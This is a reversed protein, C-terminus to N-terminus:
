SLDGEIPSTSMRAPRHTVARLQDVSKLVAAAATTRKNM